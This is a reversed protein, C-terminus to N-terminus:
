GDEKQSKRNFCRCVEEALERTPCFAILWDSCPFDTKGELQDMSPPFHGVLPARIVAHRTGDTLVTAARKELPVRISNSEAM